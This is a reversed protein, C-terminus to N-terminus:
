NSGTGKFKERWKTIIENETEPTQYYKNRKSWYKDNTLELLTSVAGIQNWAYDDGNLELATKVENEIEPFYDKTNEVGKVLQKLTIENEILEDLLIATSDPIRGHSPFYFDLFAQLSDINLPQETDFQGTEKAEKSLLFGRYEEKEYRLNDFEADVMELLASLQCLKRKFQKPVHEEEKYELKHSIDAWAHMLVTRNQLEFKFGGLERYCPAELWEDKLRLIYHYSRYGFRDPDLLEQKDTKEVIEFESEILNEIKELDSPYFCVIRLGCIDEIEKIPDEYRKRETKKWFSDFEKVRFSIPLTDVKLKSLFGELDRKLNVGLREFEPVVIDYERKLDKKDM